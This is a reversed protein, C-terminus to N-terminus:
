FMKFHFGIWPPKPRLDKKSIRALCYEMLDGSRFPVLARISIWSKNGGRRGVSVIGLDGDGCVASSYRGSEEDVWFAYQICIAYQKNLLWGADVSGLGKQKTRKRSAQLESYLGRSTPRKVSQEEASAECNQARRFALVPTKFDWSGPGELLDSNSCQM